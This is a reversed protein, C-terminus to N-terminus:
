MAVGKVSGLRTFGQPRVRLLLPLGQHTASLLLPTDVTYENTLPVVMPVVTVGGVTVLARVTVTGAGGFDGVPVRAAGVPTTWFLLGSKTIVPEPVLAGAAKM